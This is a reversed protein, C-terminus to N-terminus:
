QQKIASSFTQKLRGNIVQQPKNSSGYHFQALAVIDNFVVKVVGDSDQIVLLKQCFADLGLKPYEAMAKGGAAPGGFLLLIASPIQEGSKAADEQFDVEGFWVTDGQSLVATKLREFTAAFGYDSEWEVLGQGEVISEANTPSRLTRPINELLREQEREYESIGKVESLGHRKIIFDPTVYAVKVGRNQTEEFALLKFPLDIGLRPERKILPTNVAPDSLITVISPPMSVGADDALRRHDIVVVPKSRGASDVIVRQWHDVEDASATTVTQAWGTHGTAISLCILVPVSPRNVSIM